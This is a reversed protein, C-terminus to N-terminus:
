VTAVAYDIANKVQGKAHFIRHIQISLALLQIRNNANRQTNFIAASFLTELVEIKELTLVKAMGDAAKNEEKNLRNLPFNGYKIALVERLFHLGYQFFYKQDDKSSSVFRNATKIWEPRKDNRYCNRMWQIFQRDIANGAKKELLKKAQSFNGDALISIQRADSASVDYSTELENQIEEDKLASFHMLQCRSVITPLVLELNETILIFHTDQPPEEILKLLRNDENALLEPLCMILVKKGDGYAQFSLKKVIDVCEDKYIKGQQNDAAGQALLWDQLDIYPDALV